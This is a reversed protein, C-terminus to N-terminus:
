HRSIFIGTLLGAVGTVTCAATEHRELFNPRESKYADRERSVDALQQNAVALALSDLRRRAACDQVLVSCAHLAADGARLTSDVMTWTPLSFALTTTDSPARVTDHQVHQTRLRREYDRFASSDSGFAVQDVRTQKQLSDRSRAVTAQVATLSDMNRILVVVNAEAAVRAAHETSARYGLWWILGAAAAVGILTGWLARGTM